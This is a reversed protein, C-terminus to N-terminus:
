DTKTVMYDTGEFSIANPDRSENGLRDIKGGGLDDADGGVLLGDDDIPDKYDMDGFDFIHGYFAHMYYSVIEVITVGRSRSSTSTAM